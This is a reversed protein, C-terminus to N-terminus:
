GPKKGQSSTKAAVSPPEGGSSKWVGRSERALSLLTDWDIERTKGETDSRLRNLSPSPESSEMHLEFVKCVEEEQLLKQELFLAAENCIKKLQRLSVALDIRKKKDVKQQCQFEEEQTLLLYEERKQTEKFSKYWSAKRDKIYSRKMPLM